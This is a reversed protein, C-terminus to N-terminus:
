FIKALNQKLIKLFVYNTNITNHNFDHIKIYLKKEKEIIPVTPAM